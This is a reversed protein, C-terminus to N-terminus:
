ALALALCDNLKVLDFPKKIWALVRPFSRQREEDDAYASTVIIKCGDPILPILKDGTIGPMKIDLIVVDPKLHKLATISKVADSIGYKNADPFKDELYTLLMDVFEQEDDIVLVRKSCEGNLRDLSKQVLELKKIFGTKIEINRKIAERM